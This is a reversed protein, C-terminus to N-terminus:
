HLSGCCGTRRGKLLLEHDWEKGRWRQKKQSSCCRLERSVFFEQWRSPRKLGRGLVDKRQWANYFSRVTRNDYNVASWRTAVKSELLTDVNLNTKWNKATMTKQLSVYNCQRRGRNFCLAWSWVWRRLFADYFSSCNLNWSKVLSADCRHEMATCDGQLQLTEHSWSKKFLEHFNMFTWTLEHFNM